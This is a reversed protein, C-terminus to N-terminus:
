KGRRDSNATKKARANSKGKAKRTVCKGHILKKAKVCRTIARKPTAGETSGLPPFDGGPAQSVSGPVLLPAPNTLPGQCADGSCPQREAAAVPFGGGLRADYVDQQGDTDQPVLGQTTTFFVDVGSSSIVVQGVPGSASGTSVLSVRGRDWEYANELGNVAAPSLSAATRFVVRSGDESVGRSDMGSQLRMRESDLVSSPTINADAESNGNEDYGGEGESVRVLRGTVDDYRYIDKKADADGATLQAYASFVLFRGTERDVTCESAIPRSCVNVQAERGGATWLSTDNRESSAEAPLGSSCGIDEVGGSLQPGSCLDAIFATKGTLSDYAYLNDAGAHPLRSGEAVLVEQEVSGLLNGKAVFYVHSGDPAIAVVDQVEAPQAANPNRSVQKLETVEREVPGCEVRGGACGMRAMYLNNSADSDDSVLPQETTFFVISGDTSAGRFIAPKRAEAGPCPVEECVTALSRSIEVTKVGGLRVFLQGDECAADVSTRFFVESGDASISHFSDNNGSLVSAIKAECSPNLVKDKNNLGVLRLSSEHGESGNAMEYTHSESTAAEPLLQTDGTGFVEFVIHSFNSSTVESRLDVFTQNLDRLIMGSNEFNPAPDPANPGTDPADTQHVLYEVEHSDESAVGFNPGLYAQNLTSDLTSSFDIVGGDPAISAPFAVTVTSWGVGEVRSSVYYNAIGNDGPDGSFAGLSGFALREGSPSVALIGNAGYGGKYVPSVLEYHRGEPLALASVSTLGMAVTWCAAILLPATARLHSHSARRWARSGSFRSRM